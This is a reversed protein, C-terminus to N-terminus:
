KRRYKCACTRMLINESPLGETGDTMVVIISINYETNKSLGTLTYETQGKRIDARQMKGRGQPRYIVLYGSIEEDRSYQYKQWRVTISDDSRRLM